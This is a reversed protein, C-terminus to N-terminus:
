IHMLNFGNSKCSLALIGIALLRDKPSITIILSMVLATEADNIDFPFMEAQGTM